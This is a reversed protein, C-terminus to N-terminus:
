FFRVTKSRMAEHEEDSCPANTPVDATNNNAAILDNSLMWNEVEEGSVDALMHGDIEVCPSLPQGSKEVMEAFEAADNIIDRDEYELDYKKMIARVGMSWGCTPKLYAIIKM